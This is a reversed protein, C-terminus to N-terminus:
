KTDGNTEEKNEPILMSEIQAGMLNIVEQREDALLSEIILDFVPGNLDYKICIQNAVYRLESKANSIRMNIPLEKHKM